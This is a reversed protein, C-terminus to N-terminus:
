TDVYPTVRCGPVRKNLFEAAVDAKPRRDQPKRLAHRYYRHM